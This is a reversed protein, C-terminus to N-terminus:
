MAEPSIGKVFRISRYIAEAVGVDAPSSVIAVVTLKLNGLATKKVEPFHVGSVIGQEVKRGQKRASVIKAQKGDITEDSWRYEMYTDDQLLPDAYVGLDYHLAFHPTIIEGVVADKGDGSVNVSGAPVSLRFTSSVTIVIWDHPTGADRM